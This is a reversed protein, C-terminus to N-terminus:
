VIRKTPLTLHTYSVTEVRGSKDGAVATRREAHVVVRQPAGFRKQLRVVDGENGSQVFIKRRGRYPSALLDAHKRARLDVAHEPNPITLSGTYVARDVRQFM